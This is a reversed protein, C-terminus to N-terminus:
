LLLYKHLIHLYLNDKSYQLYIHIDKM